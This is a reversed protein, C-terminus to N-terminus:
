PKEKPPEPTTGSGFIAFKSGIMMGIRSTVSDIMWGCALTVPPTVAEFPPLTVGAGVIEAAKLAANVAPLLLGLNWVPFVFVHLVLTALLTPGHERCYGLPGAKMNRGWWWLWNFLRNALVSVIYAVLVQRM